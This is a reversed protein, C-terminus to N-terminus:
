YWCNDANQRLWKRREKYDPVARSVLQWFKKSHNLEILHALEHVCVYELIAEPAFLLRTSININGLASCSGWNSKNYKFSIKGLKLRFYKDNLEKIKKKLAPLRDHAVCRSLLASIHKKIKKHELRSSIRFHIINGQIKASSSKKDKYEIRLIYERNGVRLRQGNCYTPQTRDAFYQPNQKIKKRAWEKFLRIQAEREKASFFIPIRIYIGNRGIAIRSSKRQEIYIKILHQKKDITLYETQM